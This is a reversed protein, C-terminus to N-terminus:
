LAPAFLDPVSLWAEPNDIGAWFAADLIVSAFGAKRAQEVQDFCWEFTDELEAEYTRPKQLMIRCTVDIPPATEDQMSRLEDLGAAVQSITLGAPNWHSFTRILRRRSPLGAHVGALIPPGDESVPKPRVVSSPISFFEGSFEVPDPGWCARLAEVMEEMRDWRTPLDVAFLEHEPGSWGAGIGVLLRGGSLVDITALQQALRVPTHYGAVLASTGISIYDTWAAVFSLLELPSLVCEYQPPAVMGPVGAYQDNGALPHFVHDQVWLSAYGLEEARASFDRVVKSTVYPGIQPLGLGIKMTTM